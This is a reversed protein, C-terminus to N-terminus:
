AIIAGGSLTLITNLFGKLEPCAQASVSLDNNRLIRVADRTKVYSNRRGLRFIEKIRYSPPNNHNISEPNGSPATKNHKALAQITTWYPILWAEFDYQAAHPHFKPNNMVWAMMQAKADAADEFDTTGTYVDTLAIVADHSDLLIEVARRLKDGKPIRGNYPIPHLRPMRELRPRLFQQLTPVFAKETAGEIMVAIRM